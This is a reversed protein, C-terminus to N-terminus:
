IRDQKCLEYLLETGLQDALFQHVPISGPGHIRLEVVVHKGKKVMYVMALFGAPTIAIHFGLMLM